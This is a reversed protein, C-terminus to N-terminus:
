ACGRGIGLEGLAGVYKDPRTSLYIDFENFGFSKLIYLTFNLVGQIEDKLQTPTM